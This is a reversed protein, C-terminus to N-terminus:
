LCPHRADGLRGTRRHASLDGRRDTGQYLPMVLANPPPTLGDEILLPNIAYDCALDWRHRQRHGRRAFHSLACHLAEHALMFQTQELSLRDIYAPNYYFARADTATTRCWPGHGRADASAAGPRRSLAQGPDAPHAGGHAQDRHRGTTDPATPRCPRLCPADRGRGIAGLRRVPAEFLRGGIARHLDSVLMVGM